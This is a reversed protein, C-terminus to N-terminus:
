KQFMNNSSRFRSVKTVSFFRLVHIMFGDLLNPSVFHYQSIHIMLM